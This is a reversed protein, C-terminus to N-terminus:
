DNQMEVELEKREAVYIKKYEDLSYWAGEIKRYCIFAAFKTENGTV